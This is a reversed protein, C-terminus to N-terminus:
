SHYCGFLGLEQSPNPNKDGLLASAEVIIRVLEKM